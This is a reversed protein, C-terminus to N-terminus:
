FIKFLSKFHKETEEIGRDDFYVNGGARKGFSTFKTKLNKQADKYFKEAGEKTIQGRENKYGYHIYGEPTLSGDPNQYRRKGWKQGAIGHHALYDKTDIIM